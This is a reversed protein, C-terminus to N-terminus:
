RRNVAVSRGLHQPRLMPASQARDWRGAPGFAQRALRVRMQLSVQAKRRDLVAQQDLVTPARVVAWARAVARGPAVQVQGVVWARGVVQVQGVVWARGVVRAQGVVWARVV